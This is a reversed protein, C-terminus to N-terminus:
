PHPTVNLTTITSESPTCDQASVGFTYPTGPTNGGIMLTYTTQGAIRRVVSLPDSWATAGQLKRYLIYQLVDKEGADQDVSSSWTLWLKGSGFATDVVTFSAPAIPNRGCVTPMPIGNNPVRITTQVDRFREAAGNQGNTFRISMRVARVSDPRTAAATDVTTSTVVTRKLPINATPEIILTDGTNLTRRAFYQFFPLGSPHALINRAVMFPTGNNVRQWLIYDDTRTTSADPSFYFIYTEAPSPDGSGLMFNSPPYTYTTGPIISAASVDWSVTEVAPTQANFYAAWRTSVTDNEIYDTNFALVNNDGYVLVPQSNPVGSGMTRIVRQAEELAGRANQMMDYRQQNTDFFRSQSRFLSFGAGMVAVTMTIGILLEVLTFGTRGAQRHTTAHM